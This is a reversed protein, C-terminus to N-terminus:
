CDLVKTSDKHNSYTGPGGNSEKQWIILSCSFICFLGTDDRYWGPGDRAIRHWAMGHWGTGDYAKGQWGMGEQSRLFHIDQIKLRVYKM